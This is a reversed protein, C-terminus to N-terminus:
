HAEHCDHTEHRDITKLRHARFECGEKSCNFFKDRDCCGHQIHLIAMEYDNTLFTFCHNCRLFNFKLNEQSVQYYQHLISTFDKADSKPIKKRQDKHLHFKKPHCSFLHVDYMQRVLDKLHSIIQYVCHNCQQISM